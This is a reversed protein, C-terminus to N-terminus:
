FIKPLIAILLLVILIVFFVKKMADLATKETSPRIYV